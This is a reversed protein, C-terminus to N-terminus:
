GGAALSGLTGAYGKEEPDENKSCGWLDLLEACAADMM